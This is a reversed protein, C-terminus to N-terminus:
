RWGRGLFQLGCYTVHLEGGNLPCICLQLVADVQVCLFWLLGEVAVRHIVVEEDMVLWRLGAVLWVCQPM